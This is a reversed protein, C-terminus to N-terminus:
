NGPNGGTNVRNELVCLYKPRYKCQSATTTGCRKSESAHGRIEWEAPQSTPVSTVHWFGAKAFSIRSNFSCNRQQTTSSFMWTTDTCLVFFKLLRCTQFSVSTWQCCATSSCLRDKSRLRAPTAPPCKGGAVLFHRSPTETVGWGGWGFATHNQIIKRRQGPPITVLICRRLTVPLLCPCAFELSFSGRRTCLTYTYRLAHIYCLIDASSTGCNEREKFFHRQLHM